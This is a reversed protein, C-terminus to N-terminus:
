ASQSQPEGGGNRTALWAHRLRQAFSRLFRQVSEEAVRHLFAADLADGVVGLPPQYRGAFSMQTRDPTIPYAELQGDMIPFLQPHEVSQWRVPIRIIPFPGSTVDPEGIDVSVQREVRRQALDARLTVIRQEARRAGAESAPSIFDSGRERLLRVVDAYPIHEWRFECLERQM